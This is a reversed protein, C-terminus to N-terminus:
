NNESQTEINTVMGDANFTVYITTSSVQQGGYVHGFTSLSGMAMWVWVEVGKSVRDKFDVHESPKLAKGHPEGLIRLVDAKKSEGSKIQPFGEANVATKDNDFSSVFYYANLVGNRFELDLLRSQAASMNAFAYLYRDEQFSGDGTTKVSSAYPEGLKAQTESSKTQGLQLSSPGAYSFDGGVHACGGALLGLVVVLALYHMEFLRRMPNRESSNSHRFNSCWRVTSLTMAAHFEEMAGALAPRRAASTIM